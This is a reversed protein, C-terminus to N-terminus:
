NSCTVARSDPDTCDSPLNQDQLRVFELATEFGQIAGGVAANLKTGEKEPVVAALGASKLIDVFNLDIAGETGVDSAAATMLAGILGERFREGAGSIYAKFAGGVLNGAKTASAAEAVKASQTAVSVPALLQAAIAIGLVEVADLQFENVAVVEPSAIESLVEEAPTTASEGGYGRSEAAARKEKDLKVQHEIAEQNTRFQRPDFDLGNSGRSLELTENGDPDVAGLPSNGVYSYRNWSLPNGVKGLVADVSLFRRMWPSYYRAHMYDLDDNRDTVTPDPDVFNRDREHGTFQFPEDDQNPDTVEWGFPMYEHYAVVNDGASEDTILRPSGLHDPHFFRVEESAGGPDSISALLRDGGRVFDKRLRWGDRTREVQRLVGNSAGRLSWREQPGDPGLADLVAVREGSADYLYRQNVGLGRQTTVTGLPDFTFTSGGFTLLNGQADYRGGRLRHSMTDVPFTGPSPGGTVATLNGFRDYQYSEVATATAGSSTPHVVEAAQLRGVGDYAFRDSGIVSPNGAMDYQFIGSDWDDQHGGTSGRAGATYIRHPRALHQPPIEQVWTVQNASAVTDILGNAHYSVASVVPEFVWAGAVRREADVALVRGREYRMEVAREPAVDRCSAGSFCTPYHLRTIRGISDYEYETLFSIGSTSRLQEAALRGTAAEYRFTKTVVVDIQDGDPLAPDEPIWNHRKTALLRGNSPDFISESLPRDAMLDRAQIVRGLRDFLFGQREVLAGGVRHQREAPKGLANHQRFIVRGEIEPHEEFNLFGAGDYNFVRRRTGPQVVVALSGDVGYYYDSRQLADSGPQSPEEVRATRGFPDYVTARRTESRGPGSQSPFASQVWWRETKRRQGLWDIFTQRRVGSPEDDPHNIKSVRGLGDYDTRTNGPPGGALGRPFQTSVLLPQGARYYTRRVESWADPGARRSLEKYPQGFGTLQIQSETGSARSEPDGQKVVGKAPSDGAQNGGYRLYQFITRDGHDQGPGRLWTMRGLRDYAATTTLGAADRSLSVLGTARDIAPRHLVRLVDQDPGSLCPDEIWTIQRVGHEYEHRRQFAPEVAAPEGCGDPVGSSSGADFDGGYLRERVLQGAADFEFRMLLDASGEDPEAIPQDPRRSGLAVVKVDRRTRRGVVQGLEDTCSDTRVREIFHGPDNGDDRNFEVTEQTTSYPALNLLWPENGSPMHDPPDGVDVSGAALNYATTEVRTPWQSPNATSFVAGSRNWNGATVTTRFHGLGDWDRMSTHVKSQPQGNTFSVSRRAVARRNQDFYLAVPWGSPDSARDASYRVYDAKAKTCHPSNVLSERRDDFAERDFQASCEWIEQSLFLKGEEPYLAAEVGGDASTLAKTFPLGFDAALWDEDANSGPLSHLWQGYYFVSVVWGLGTGKAEPSFLFTRSDQYNPGCQGQFSNFTLAQRYHWEATPNQFVDGVAHTVPDWHTKRLVGLSTNTPAPRNNCGPRFPGCTSGSGDLRAENPFTYKQYEYGQVGGTPLQAVALMGQRGPYPQPHTYGGAYGAYYGFAYAERSSLDGGATASPLIMGTLLATDHAAGVWPSFDASHSEPRAVSALEYVFSYELSQNGATGALHASEVVRPYQAGAVAPDDSLEVRHSRGISDRLTWTNEDASYDIRLWNNHLDRLTTLRWRGAGEDASPVFNTFIYTVGDPSDVAATVSSTKRFRYFSGDSAYGVDDDVPVSPPNGAPHIAPGFSRKRGDPGVFLWADSKNPNRTSTTRFEPTPRYPPYLEGLTLKWGMGANADLMPMAVNHVQSCDDPDAPRPDRVQDFDWANANYVLSLGYSFGERLAYRQGVPLTFTLNGNFTNIDDVAGTAFYKSPDYGRGLTEGELVWQNPEMAGAAFTLLLSSVVAFLPKFLSSSQIRPM